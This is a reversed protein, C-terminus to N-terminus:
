LVIKNNNNNNNNNLIIQPLINTKPKWKNMYIIVLIIISIIAIIFLIISTIGAIRSWNVKQIGTKEPLDIGVYENRKEIWLEVYPKRTMTSVQSIEIYFSKGNADRIDHQPFITVSCNIDVAYQLYDNPDTSGPKFTFIVHIFDTHGGCNSSKCFDWITPSTKIIEYKEASINPVISDIVSSDSTICNVYWYLDGNWNWKNKSSDYLNSDSTALVLEVPNNNCM